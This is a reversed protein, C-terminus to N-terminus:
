NSNRNLVVVKAHSILFNKGFESHFHNELKEKLELYLNKLSQMERRVVDTAINNMLCKVFPFAIGPPFDFSTKRVTQSSSKPISSFKASPSGGRSTAKQRKLVTLKQHKNNDDDVSFQNLLSDVWEPDVNNFANNSKFLSSNSIFHFHFPVKKPSKRISKTSKSQEIAELKKSSLNKTIKSNFTDKM